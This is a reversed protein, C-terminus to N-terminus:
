TVCLEAAWLPPKSSYPHQGGAAGSAEGLETAELVQATDGDRAYPAELLKLVRQVESFDGNEAAEIANQAMYNRLIYKPNNTHMVSM